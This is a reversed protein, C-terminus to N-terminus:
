GRLVTICYSNSPYDVM